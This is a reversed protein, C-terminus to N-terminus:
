VGAAPRSADAVVLTHMLPELARRLTDPLAKVPKRTLPDVYVHIFFGQAAPSDSEGENFIGLEYRVSSRGIHPVRVGVTLTEPFAVPAFYSCGNEVVLGIATTEADATSRSRAAAAPDTPLVLAGARILYRNVATDMYQMYLANNAHRYIDNDCWRTQVEFSTPYSSLPLPHPKRSYSRASSSLTRFSGSLRASDVAFNRKRSSCLAGLKLASRPQRLPSGSM